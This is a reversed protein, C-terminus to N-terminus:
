FDNNNLGIEKIKKIVDARSVLKNRNVPSMNVEPIYGNFNKHKVILGLKKQDDIIINFDELIKELSLVSVESPYRTQFDYWFDYYHNYDIMLQNLNNMADDKDSFWECKLGWNIISALWSYFEKKIIIHITNTPYNAIENLENLSKVYYNNGYQKVIFSPILNKKYYWRCHKHRPSHRPEDFSNLPANGCRWLCENLYNTGSRQLGHHALGVKKNFKKNILLLKNAIKPNIKKLLIKM